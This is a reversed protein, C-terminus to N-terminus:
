NLNASSINLNLPAAALFLAALCLLGLSSSSPSRTQFPLFCAGPPQALPIPREPEWITSRAVTYPHALVPPLPCLQPKDQLQALSQCVGGLQATTSSQICLMLQWNVPVILVPFSPAGLEAKPQATGQPRGKPATSPALSQRASCREWPGQGCNVM